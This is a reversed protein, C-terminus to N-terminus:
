VGLWPGPRLVHHGHGHRRRGDWDGIDQNFASAGDFMYEMTTVDSTDWFMCASTGLAGIDWRQLVFMLVKMDTVGSTEWTRFTVTRTAEAATPDALWADRATRINSDTM